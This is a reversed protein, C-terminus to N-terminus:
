RRARFLNSIDGARNSTRSWGELGVPQCPTCGGVTNISVAVRFDYLLENAFTAFRTKANVFSDVSCRDVDRRAWPWHFSHHPTRAPTAHRWSEMRCYEQPFFSLVYSRDDVQPITTDNCRFLYLVISFPRSKGLPSDMTETVTPNM